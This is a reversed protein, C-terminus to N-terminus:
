DAERVTAVDALGVSELADHLVAASRGDPLAVGLSILCEPRNSPHRMSYLDTINVDYEGLARTARAMVGPEDSSRIVIEHSPDRTNTLEALEIILLESNTINASASKLDAELTERVTGQGETAILMMSFHGRLITMQSTEINCDHEALVGAVEAVINPRDRGIALVAFPNM